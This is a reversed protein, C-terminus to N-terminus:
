YCILMVAVFAGLGVIAVGFLLVLTVLVLAVRARPSRWHRWAFGALALVVLVALLTAALVPAGWWWNASRMGMPCPQTAWVPVAWLTLWIAIGAQRWLRM